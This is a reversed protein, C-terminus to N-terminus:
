HILIKIFQIKLYNMRNELEFELLGYKKLFYINKDTLLFGRSKLTDIVEGVDIQREASWQM